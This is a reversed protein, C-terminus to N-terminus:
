NTPTPTTSQNMMPGKQDKMMKGDRGKQDGQENKDGDDKKMLGKMPPKQEGNLAQELAVRAVRLSQQAKKLSADDTSADIATKADALKALAATIATQMATVNGSVKAKATAFDVVQEAEKVEGKKMKKEQKKGKLEGKMMPQPTTGAVPTTTDEAFALSSFALAGAIISGAIVKNYQKM